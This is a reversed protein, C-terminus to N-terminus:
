RVNLYKRAYLKLQNITSKHKLAIYNSDVNLVIAKEDTCHVSYEIHYYKSRSRDYMCTTALFGM